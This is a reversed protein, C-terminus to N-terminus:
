LKRIRFCHNRNICDTRWTKRFDESSCSIGTCDTNCTRIGSLVWLYALNIIFYVAMILSVGGVIAVPLDKGPNKMEGAIAGVNTWGEFAFLIAIMLQGLVVMPSLGEGVMPTFVPNTGAGRM